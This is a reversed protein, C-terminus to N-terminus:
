QGFRIIIFAAAGIAAFTQGVVAAIVLRTYFIRSEKIEEVTKLIARVMEQLSPDGNRGRVLIDDHELLMKDRLAQTLKAMFPKERQPLNITIEGM